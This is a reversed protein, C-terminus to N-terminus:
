MIFFFSDSFTIFTCFNGGKPGTKQSNETAIVGYYTLVHHSWVHLGNKQMDFDRIKGSKAYVIGKIVSKNNFLPFINLNESRIQSHFSGSSHIAWKKVSSYDNM